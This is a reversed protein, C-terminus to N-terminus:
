EHWDAQLSRVHNAQNDWASTRWNERVTKGPLWPPLAMLLRESLASVYPEYFRRVEGLQDYCTRDGIWPIRESELLAQLQALEDPPLRRANQAREPHVSLVQALDVVAHRAMAFTLRAQRIVAQSAPDALADPEPRAPHHSCGAGLMVLASTDLISTLAALWSQNDHQSRFYGLVPYSLHSELLQAAWTEFTKLLERLEERSRANRRLLEGASPPSGARADLLSIHVERQSFAQYIVPLYGIIVALFGFGTGAEIVALGRAGPTAPTVLGLTFFSSGSAYLEAPWSKPDGICAGLLSFALVLGVAWLLLLGLLSLPGFIALWEERRRGPELRRMLARYPRWTLVYFFRALRLRRTVRRPLIITEFGDWLIVILLLLGAIGALIRM